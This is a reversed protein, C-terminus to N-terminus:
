ILLDVRKTFKALAEFHKFINEFKKTFALHNNKIRRELAKLMFIQILIEM